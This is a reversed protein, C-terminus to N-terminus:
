KNYKANFKDIQSKRKTLVPAIEDKDENRKSYDHGYPNDTIVPFMTVIQNTFPLSVVEIYNYPIGDKRAVNDYRFIYHEFLDHYLYENCKIKETMENYLVRLDIYPHFLPTGEKHNTIASHKAIHMIADNENYNRIQKIIYTENIDIPLDLYAITQFMYTLNSKLFFSDIQLFTERAKELDGEFIYYHSLRGRAKNKLKQSTAILRKYCELEKEKQRTVQYYKTLTIYLFDLQEPNMNLAQLAKGEGEQCKGEIFCILAECAIKSSEDVLDKHENLLREADEIYGYLTYEQLLYELQGQGMSKKIHREYLKLKRHVEKMDGNYKAQEIAIFYTNDKGISDDVVAALESVADNVHKRKMLIRAICTNAYKNGLEHAKRFSAEANHFDFINEYYLGYLFCTKDESYNNEKLIDCYEKAKDFKKMSLYMKALEYMASFRNPAKEMILSEYIYVAEKKSEEKGDAMEIFAQQFRIAPADHYKYKLEELLSKAMVYNGKKTYYRVRDLDKKLDKTIEKDRYKRGM